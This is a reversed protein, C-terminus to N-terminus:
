PCCPMADRVADTPIFLTFSSVGLVADSLNAAAVAAQFVSHSVDKNAAAYAANM